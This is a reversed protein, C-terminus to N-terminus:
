SRVGLIISDVQRFIEPKDAPSFDVEYEVNKQLYQLSICVERHKDAHWFYVEDNM